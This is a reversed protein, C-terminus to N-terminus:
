TGKEIRGLRIIDDVSPFKDEMGNVAVPTAGGPDSVVIRGVM